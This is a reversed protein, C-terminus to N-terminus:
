ENNFRALHGNEQLYLSRRYRFPPDPTRFDPNRCKRYPGAARIQLLMPMKGMSTFFLIADAMLDETQTFCCVALALQFIGM